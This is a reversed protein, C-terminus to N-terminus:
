NNTARDKKLSQPIHEVVQILGILPKNLM